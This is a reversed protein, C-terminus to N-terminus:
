IFGDWKLFIFQSRTSCLTSSQVEAVTKLYQFPIVGDQRFSIMIGESFLQLVLDCIANSMGDNILYSFTKARLGVLKTIIKRGLENKM